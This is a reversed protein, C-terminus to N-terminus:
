VCYFMVKMDGGKIGDWRPGRVSIVFMSLVRALVRGLDQQGKIHCQFPLLNHIIVFPSRPHFLLWSFEMYEAVLWCM